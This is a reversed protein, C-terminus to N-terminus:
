FVPILTSNNITFSLALSKKPQCPFTCGLLPHNSHISKWLCLQQCETLNLFHKKRKTLDLEITFVSLATPVDPKATKGEVIADDVFWAGALIKGNPGDVCTVAIPLTGDPEGPQLQSGIARLMGSLSTATYTVSVHLKIIKDPCTQM